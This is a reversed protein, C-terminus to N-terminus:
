KLSCVPLQVKKPKKAGARLVLLEAKASHVLKYGTGDVTIMGRTAPPPPLFKKKAAAIAKKCKASVKESEGIIDFNRQEAVDAPTCGAPTPMARSSIAGTTLDVTAEQYGADRAIWHTADALEYSGNYLNIYGVEETGQPAARGIPGLFTGKSANWLWAGGDPGAAYGVVILMDGVFIVDGTGLGNGNGDKDLMPFERLFAKTKADFIQIDGGLAVRAVKSGDLSFALTERSDPPTTPPKEKPKCYGEACGSPVGYANGPLFTVPRAALATTKPDITWCQFPKDSVEFDGAHAACAVLSTGEAAIRLEYRIAAGDRRSLVVEAPPVCAKKTMAAVLKAHLEGTIDEAAALSPSAALAVLALSVRNM